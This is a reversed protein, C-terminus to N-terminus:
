TGAEKAAAELLTLMEELGPPPHPAQALLHYRRDIEVTEGPERAALAQRLTALAEQSRGLGLLALAKNALLAYPSQLRAKWATGWIELAAQFYPLGSAQGVAAEEEGRHAAIVGLSV